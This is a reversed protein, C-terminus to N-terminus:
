TIIQTSSRSSRRFEKRDLFRTVISLATKKVGSEDLERCAKYDVLEEFDELFFELLNGSPLVILRKKENLYTEHEINSVPYITAEKSLTTGDPLKVRFTENVEVGSKLFVADNYMIERTEWHHIGDWNGYKEVTYDNLVQAERPWQEYIDIINNTLLIVWDLESDGYVRYALYEPRMGEPITYAEFETLYRELAQDVVVRRFINKVLKYDFREDATEVGVYIDPLYSFYSAM